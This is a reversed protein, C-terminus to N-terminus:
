KETCNCRVPPFYKQHLNMMNLREKRYPFCKECSSFIELDWLDAFIRGKQELIGYKLVAELSRVSPPTFDGRHQLYDVAGNGARTPIVVCCEVGVSFAFDLSRKAWTLGEEESLYPPRLLIFARVAIKNIKLLNVAQEFDCLDMKKNLKKLVEPHATELGIAIELRGKLMDRFKLAEDNIFAPHSEIIITEFERQNMLDAIATYDAPPIAKRDFFSGSNYLKIHKTSPLQELALAIQKPIAGEAVPQDTTNKWLDCMLCRFPCERNTLFLTAVDEIKGTATREKEVTFAYPKLDSVPNKKGRLSL